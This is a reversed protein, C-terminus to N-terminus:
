GVFFPVTKYPGSIRRPYWRVEGGQASKNSSNRAYGSFDVQCIGNKERSRRQYASDFAIIALIGFVRERCWM